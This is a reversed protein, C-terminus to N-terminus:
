DKLKKYMYLSCRSWKYGVREQYKWFPGKTGKYRGWKPTIIRLDVWHQSNSAPPPQGSSTCTVIATVHKHVHHGHPQWQGPLMESWNERGEPKLMGEVGKGHNERLRPPLLQCLHGMYTQSHLLMLQKMTIHTTVWCGQGRVSPITPEYKTYFWVSHFILFAFELCLIFNYNYGLLSHLLSFSLPWTPVIDDPHCNYGCCCISGTSTLKTM